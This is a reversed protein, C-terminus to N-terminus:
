PAAEPSAAPACSETFRSRSLFQDFLRRWPDWEHGGDTLYVHGEPLAQALLADEDALRDQQGYGLYLVPGPERGATVAQLWRWIERQYNDETLPDARAPAQWRALGGADRIEKLLGGSGLYPALALVGDVHAPRERSYLLTGMGGMSIGVVWTQEYGKARAPTVVDRDLRETLQGRFYYGMTANAAVVDVSLGRQRLARVFGEEAFVEAEDGAGPLFVVLCRARAGTLEDKVARMPTPAPLWKLCGSLLTMSLALLVLRNARVPGDHGLKRAAHCFCSSPMPGENRGALALRQLTARTEGPRRHAVGM